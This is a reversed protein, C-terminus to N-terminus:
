ATPGRCTVSVLAEDLSFYALCGLRAYSVSKVSIRQGTSMPAVLQNDRIRLARGTLPVAVQGLAQTDNNPRYRALIASTEISAPM